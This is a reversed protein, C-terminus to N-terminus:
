RCAIARSRSTNPSLPLSRRRLLSVLDSGPSMREHALLLQLRERAVPATKRKQFFDFVSM